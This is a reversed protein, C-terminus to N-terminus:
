EVRRRLYAIHKKRARGDREQKLFEKADVPTLDLTVLERYSINSIDPMDSFDVSVEVTEEVVPMKEVRIKVPKRSIPAKKPALPTIPVPAPPPPANVRVLLSIQLHGPDSPNSADREDVNIVIDDYKVKYLHKTVPGQYYHKGRGHGGKYVAHVTGANAGPLEAVRQSLPRQAPNSRTAVAGVNPNTVPTNRGGCGPCGGMMSSREYEQVMALVKRAMQASRHKNLKTRQGGHSRYGYLPEPVRRGCFTLMLRANYEGDEYFDLAENWGGVAKWQEKSHLVGVSALGVKTRIHGCTFDLLQYHPVNEDGFKYIDPYLPIGSWQNVLKSIADPTLVDDSDVPFIYSGSAIEVARNRAFSVGRNTDSRGWVVTPYRDKVDELSVHSGDDWVVVECFTQIAGVQIVGQSVVSALCEDLWGKEQESKCHTPVIISVDVM